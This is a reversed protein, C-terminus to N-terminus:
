RAEAHEPLDKSPDDVAIHTELLLAASELHTATMSSDARKLPPLFRPPRNRGFAERYSTSFVNGRSCAKHCETEYQAKAEAVWLRFRALARTYDMKLLARIDDSKARQFRRRMANVKKREQALVPSCWSNGRANSKVPRLQRRLHKEFIGYFAGLIFDLAEPSRPQSCIIKAFWPERELSRLLEQQAYRTLRKRAVREDSGIRVEMNKHESYTADSRVIWTYGAMLVSPTALTLDIWSAANATEYTPESQPDNMVVLGVAAAFEMVQAGRDDGVRPGWARHKANFEGAVIVHPSRSQSVVEQVMRLTTDMPKHPPAYVSVITFHSDCYQGYVGVVHKSLKVPCLDFPPRRVLVIAAPDEEYAFATFGVLLNPM